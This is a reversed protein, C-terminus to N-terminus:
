KQAKPQKGLVAAYLLTLQAQNGQGDEGDGVALEILQLMEDFTKCLPSLGRVVAAADVLGQRFVEKSVDAM